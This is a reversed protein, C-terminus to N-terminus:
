AGQKNKAEFEKILEDPTKGLNQLSYSADDAMPHEPYDALFKEYAKKADELRGLNNEYIFGQLFLAFPRKEYEPYNNYVKQYLALARPAQNMGLSVEAGKFIMDASEEAEPFEEGYKVYGDILMNTKTVDMSGDEKFVLGEFEKIKALLGKQDLGDFPNVYSQEQETEAANEEVKEPQNCAFLGAALCAILVNKKM